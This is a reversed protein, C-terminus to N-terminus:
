ILHNEQLFVKAVQAPDLRNVAAASNLARIADVTLLSHLENLFEPVDDDVADFVETRILPVVNQFGFLKRDDELVVLGSRSLQPDTTFVDAAQIEGREIAQYNLGISLTKLEMNDLGYTEVIGEYGQGGTVNEPYTSYVFDGIGRLDSMTRLGHEAAFEETVAIANKNEFPTANLTTVGHEAEWERAWEYTAEASDMLREEGGLVVVIVGTYEPYIDVQGAQLATNIIETSGVNTKLSVTYGLASIGQAYLEGMIWSEAFGKSGITITRDKGTGSAAAPACGSLAALGAAAGIGWLGLAARRSLEHRHQTM